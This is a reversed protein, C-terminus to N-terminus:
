LQLSNLSDISFSISFYVLQMSKENIFNLQCQNPCQKPNFSVKTPELTCGSSYHASLFPFATFHCNAIAVDADDEDEVEDEADDNDDDDDDSISNLM